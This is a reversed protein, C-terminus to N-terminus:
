SPEERLTATADDYRYTALQPAAQRIAEVLAPDKVVAYNRGAVTVALVEGRQSAAKWAAMVEPEVLLVEGTVERADFAPYTM